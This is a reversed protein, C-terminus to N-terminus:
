DNEDKHKGKGKGHRKAPHAPALCRDVDDLARDVEHRDPELRRAQDLYTRAHTCSGLQLLTFGLNYNAYGEVPDAPGTGRLGRVARRLLPLAASYSGQRMLTWARDNLVHPDVRPPTRHVVAVPPNPSAQARREPKTKGNGGSLAVGLLVAVVVLAGVGAALL